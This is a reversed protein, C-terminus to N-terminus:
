DDRYKLNVSKDLDLIRWSYNHPNKQMDHLIYITGIWFGIVFSMIMPMVYWTLIRDVYDDQGYFTKAVELVRKTKDRLQRLFRYMNRAHVYYCFGFPQNSLSDM